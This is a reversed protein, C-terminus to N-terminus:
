LCQCRWARILAGIRVAVMIYEWRAGAGLNIYDGKWAWLVYKVKNHTFSIKTSKMDAGLDFMFDYFKNYGFHQQWGNFNAHYIGKKDKKMNLLKGGIQATDVGLSLAV